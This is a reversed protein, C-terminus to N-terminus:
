GFSCERSHGTFTILDQITPHDTLLKKMLTGHEYFLYSINDTINFFHLLTPQHNLKIILVQLTPDLTQLDRLKNKTDALSIKTVDILVVLTRRYKIEQELEHPNHLVLERM